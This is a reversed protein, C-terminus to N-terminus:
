PSTTIDCSYLIPVVTGASTLSCAGGSRGSNTEILAKAQACGGANQLETILEDPTNTSWSFGFAGTAASGSTSAGGSSNCTCTSAGNGPTQSCTCSSSGTSSGATGGTAAATPLGCTLILTATASSPATGAGPITITPTTPFTVAETSALPLMLGVCLAVRRLTQLTEKTM